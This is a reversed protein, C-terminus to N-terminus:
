NRKEMMKEDHEKKSFECGCYDQRYLQYQKSLLISHKYGNEKKYNSYLFHCHEDENSFGIENIWDSNKYPSISLTTTYYDFFHEKAYAYTELLRIQYCKYCRISQEGKNEDGQIADLFRQHNYNVKIVRINVNMRQILLCLEDYRKNYEEEPYINPNDFLITVDFIHALLTLVHSSCPACCSHLLLKKRDKTKALIALQKKFDNYNSILNKVGNM